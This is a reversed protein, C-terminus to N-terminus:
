AFCAVVATLCTSECLVAKKLYEVVTVLSAQTREADSLLLYAYWFDLLCTREDRPVQLSLMNLGCVTLEIAYEVVGQM